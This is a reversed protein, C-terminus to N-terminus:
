FIEWDDMYNYPYVDKKYYCFSNILIINSFIYANSFQKKFNEDFKKYYNKICFLYKYEILDDKDKIRNIKIQYTQKIKINQQM